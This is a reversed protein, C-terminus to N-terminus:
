RSPEEAHPKGSNIEADILTRQFTQDGVIIGSATAVAALRGGAPDELYIDLPIRTFFARTREKLVAWLGGLGGLVGPRRVVHVDLDSTPGWGGRLGSGGLVAGAIRARRLRHELLVLAKKLRGESTRFRGGARRTAHVNTNLIWNGTHAIVLSLSIAPLLALGAGSTLLLLATTALLGEILIKGFRDTRGLSLFGQHVWNVLLVLASRSWGPSLRGLLRDYAAYM